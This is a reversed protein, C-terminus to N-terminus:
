YFLKFYRKQTLGIGFSAGTTVDDQITIGLEIALHDGQELSCTQLGRVPM